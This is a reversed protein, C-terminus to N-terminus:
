FDFPGDPAIFVLQNFYPSYCSSAAEWHNDGLYWNDYFTGIKRYWFLQETSNEVQSVQLWNDKSGTPDAPFYTGSGVGYGTSLGTYEIASLQPYHKGDLGVIQYVM